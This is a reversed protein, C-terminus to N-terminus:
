IRCRRRWWWWQWGGGVGAGAGSNGDDDSPPSLGLNDDSQTREPSSGSDDHANIPPQDGGETTGGVEENLWNSNDQGDLLPTEREELWQSLPDDEEFIYDLNIPNFGEEIERQSRRMTRRLKLRMNYHVFVLKQLRMYKLRNRTKTHILSFTSWNRECNSASTTQSLVRIAIRQLEPACLGYHIWWEAPNTQKVARQALPTGFTEQRDRYLLLQNIARIQTDIDPVLKTIVKKVGDMVERAVEPSPPAGYLFQPNLFYGAAHLDQHLQFSWRNDIIKWYDKYFRCDKQIALKARDIAEYIFGMTPKEDGDVLKLVKVLPEQVKIIDSAKQWFEKGLIIKKSDYAPGSKAMGFRSNKWADSTFMERLAQKHRVITELAIFNTAFRTIAPRLLERNNTFKKMFNVTWTHNYIFSTITRADELVKKVNSKKGIDELILDICHAACATWYLNPRKQMLLKGGAKMAAENDTVVQVVNEEGIEEVVEDMLRFYYEATRSPVDSADVSKHFVTGRDCYVLFNIIHKRTPGSWGDCMLTVGREKWIGAFSAIYNKMEQYEQELYIESIEYPSPGKVGKGVEAAIDLMPQMFPSDAVNAPIRNYILFKGVAKGLKSRLGKLLKTNLKPQKASKSRELIPDMAKLRAEPADPNIWQRGSGGVERSSYSRAGARNFGSTAGSGSGGGEEYINGRGTTRARFRQRDEWQQQSRMSEQRAFRMSEEELDEEDSLNEFDGRIQAEAEEQRKQKDRKKEAYQQLHKMMQERVQTTVNSCGAVQSKKHALHQKLRTIGGKIIKGCLKCMIVHRNGDVATGFHWGIDESPLNENGRDRSM